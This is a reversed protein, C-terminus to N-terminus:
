NLNGLYEYSVKLLHHSELLADNIKLTILVNEDFAM